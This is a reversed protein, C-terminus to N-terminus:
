PHSISHYGNIPTDENNTVLFLEKVCAEGAVLRTCTIDLLEGLVSPQLYRFDGWFDFESKIRDNLIPQIEIGANGFYWAPNTDVFISVHPRKLGIVAGDGRSIGVLFDVQESTIHRCNFHEFLLLRSMEAYEALKRPRPIDHLKNVTFPDILRKLGEAAFSTSVGSKGHLTLSPAHGDEDPILCRVLFNTLTAWDKEKAGIFEYFDNLGGERAKDTTPFPLPLGDLSRSFRIPASDLIEWGAGSYKVTSGDDTGLDLYYCGDHKGVRNIVPMTPAQRKAISVIISVASNKAKKGCECGTELYYTRELWDSFQQSDVPCAIPRGGLIVDAYAVGEPTHWLKSRSQGIAVLQASTDKRYQKKTVKRPQQNDGNKISKM